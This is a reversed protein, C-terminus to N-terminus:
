IRVATFTRTKVNRGTIVVRITATAAPKKALRVQGTVLCGKVGNRTRKVATMKKTVLVKTGRKVTVTAQAPCGRAPKIRKVFAKVQVWRGKLTVQQVVPCGNARGPAAVTPCADTADRVGDADLDRGFLEGGLLTPETLGATQGATKGYEVLGGVGLEGDPGSGWCHASRDDWVACTFSRGGGVAIVRHGGTDVAVTTEGADDGISETNGQGLQGNSNDGWCRLSGDDLIACPSEDGAGLAVATHGGLNVAVPHEGAQDGIDLINGQGLQGVWNGGWCRVTGDEIIVCTHGLGSAVAKAQHGQLDVAVTSEDPEDGVNDTNGQGLEGEFNYGWCRVVGGAMLACFFNGGSTLAVAATGGLDVAVTTEGPADGISNINGQALKGYSGDGWCRVSGGVLLACTAKIGAVVDIAKAGGLDVVVTKPEISEDGINETNGQGLQGQDNQGWCRVVGSSLVVCSHNDGSAAAVATDAGLGVAVSSEGSDNGIDAVNGQALQGFENDGWCRLGGSTTIACSHSGGTALSGADVRAASTSGEARDATAPVELAVVSLAVAGMTALLVVARRATGKAVSVPSLTNATARQTM